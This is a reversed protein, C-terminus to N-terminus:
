CLFKTEMINNPIVATTMKLQYGCAMQVFTLTCGATKFHFTSHQINCGRQAEMKSFM